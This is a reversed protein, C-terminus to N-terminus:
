KERITRVAHKQQSNIKKLNTRNTSAWALNGYNIYTHIYSYYLSLLSKKDLYQKARFLLGLNKAIKTEVSNIHPKWTLNEDILIGLFKTCEDRAVDCGNIRLKPM